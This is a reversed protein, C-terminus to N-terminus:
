CPPHCTNNHPRIPTLASTGSLENDSLSLHTVDCADYHFLGLLSALDLDELQELTILLHSLDLTLPRSLHLALYALRLLIIPPASLVEELQDRKSPTDTASKNSLPPLSSERQSYRVRFSTPSSRAIALAQASDPHRSGRLPFSVLSCDQEGRPPHRRHRRSPHARSHQTLSISWRQISRRYPLPFLPLCLLGSVWLGAFRKM